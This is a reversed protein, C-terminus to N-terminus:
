LEVSALRSKRHLKKAPISSADSSVSDGDDDRFCSLPANGNFKMFGGGYSDQQPTDLDVSETDHHSIDIEDDSENQHGNLHTEDPSDNTEQDEDHQDFGNALITRDEDLDLSATDVNNQNMTEGDVLAEDVSPDKDEVVIAESLPQARNSKRIPTKAKRIVRPKRKQGSKLSHLSTVLEERDDAGNDEGAEDIIDSQINTGKRLNGKEATQGEVGSGNNENAETDQTSQDERRMRERFKKKKSGTGSAKSPTEGNEQEPVEDDDSQARSKSKRNDTYPTPFAIAFGDPENPVSAEFADILEELIDQLKMSEHGTIKEKLCRFCVKLTMRKSGKDFENRIIGWPIKGEQAAGSQRIANLLQLKDNASLARANKYAEGLRWSTSLPKLAADDDDDSAQRSMLKKWKQSCQLRSRTYDMKESIKGWDIYKEEDDLLRLNNARRRAAKIISICEEVAICLKDEEEKDWADKRMNNGCVLYNRWRDRVDEPHRNIQRGIISWKGPNLEYADRLEEDQEASWKGRAEFNHYKRRCFNHIRTSSISPVEGCVTKWLERAGDTEANQQVLENIQYQSMDNMEKYGEISDTIARIDESSLKGTTMPAAQSRKPESAPTKPSKPELETTGPRTRKKPYTSPGSDNLPLRCKPPEKSKEKSKERFKRSVPKPSPKPNPDSSGEAPSPDPQFNSEQDSDDTPEPIQNIATWSPRPRRYKEPAKLKTASKVSASVVPRTPSVFLGPEDQSDQMNEAEREALDLGLSTAEVDDPPASDAQPSFYARLDRSPPGKEKITKTRKRSTSKPLDDFAKRKGLVKKSPRIPEEDEADSVTSAIYSIDQAVQASLPIEGVANRRAGTKKSPRTPEEDEADSLVPATPNTGKVVQPSSPIELEPSRRVFPHHSTPAPTLPKYFISTPDNEDDQSHTSPADSVKRSKAKRAKEMKLPIAALNDPDYEDYMARATTFTPLKPLTANGEEIEVMTSSLKAAKAVNRRERAENLLRVADFLSDSSDRHERDNTENEPAVTVQSQRTTKPSTGNVKRTRKTKPVPEQVADEVEVGDGLGNQVTEPGEENIPAVDEAAGNEADEAVREEVINRGKRTGNKRTTKARSKSKPAKVVEEKVQEARLQQSLLDEADDFGEFTEYGNNAGQDDL